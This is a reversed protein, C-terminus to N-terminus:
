LPLLLLILSLIFFWYSSSSLYLVTAISQYRCRAFGPWLNNDQKLSCSWLSIEDPNHIFAVPSWLHLLRSFSTKSRARKTAVQTFLDAHLSIQSSPWCFIETPLSLFFISSRLHSRLLSSLLLRRHEFVYPDIEDGRVCCCRRRWNQNEEQCIAFSMNSERLHHCSACVQIALFPQEQRSSQGCHPCMLVSVERGQWMSSILSSQSTGVLSHELFLSSFCRSSFLPRSVSVFTFNWDDMETEQNCMATGLRSVLQHFRNWMWEWRQISEWKRPHRPAKFSLREDKEPSAPQAGIPPPGQKTSRNWVEIHWNKREQGTVAPRSVGLLLFSIKDMKAREGIEESEWSQSSLFFFLSISSILSSQSTGVLAHELSFVFSLFSPFPVILSVFQEAWCCQCRRQWEGEGEYGSNRNVIDAAQILARRSTAWEEQTSVTNVGRTLFSIRLVLFSPFFLCFSCLLLFSPIFIRFCATWGCSADRCGERGREKSGKEGNQHTEIWGERRTDTLKQLEFARERQRVLHMWSFAFSSMCMRNISCRMMGASVSFFSFPFFFCFLFSIIFSFVLSLSSSSPSIHHAHSICLRHVRGLASQRSLVPRFSLVLWLSLPLLASLVLDRHCLLSFSSFKSFSFCSSLSWFAARSLLGKSFFLSLRYCSNWLSCFSVFSLLRLWLWAVSRFLFSMAFHDNLCFFSCPHVELCFITWCGKGKRKDKGGHIWTNM